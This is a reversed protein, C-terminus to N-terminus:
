LYVHGCKKEKIINRVLEKRSNLIGKSVADLQMADKITKCGTWELVWEDVWAKQGRGEGM